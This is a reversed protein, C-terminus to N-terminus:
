IEVNEENRFIQLACLKKSCVIESVTPLEASAPKLAVKLHKVGTRENNTRENM